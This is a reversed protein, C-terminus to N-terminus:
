YLRDVMNEYQERSVLIFKEEIAEPPKIIGNIKRGDMAKLYYDQEDIYFAMDCYEENYIGHPIKGVMVEIPVAVDGIKIKDLVQGYTLFEM